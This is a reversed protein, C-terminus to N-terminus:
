WGQPPPPPTPQPHLPHPFVKKDHNFHPPKHEELAEHLIEGLREQQEQTLIDKIRRFGTIIKKEHQAQLNSIENIITDVKADNIEDQKLMDMLEQRKKYLDARLHAADMEMEDRMKQMELLQEQTLELDRAIPHKAWNKINGPPHFHFPENQRHRTFWFFGFTCLTAINIAVSIILIIVILKKSM